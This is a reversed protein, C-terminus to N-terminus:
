EKLSTGPENLSGKEVVEQVEKRKYKTNALEESFCTMERVIASAIIAMKKRLPFYTIIINAKGLGLSEQLVKPYVPNQLLSSNLDETKM